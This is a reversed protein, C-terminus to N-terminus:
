NVTSKSLLSVDSFVKGPTFCLIYKAESFIQVGFWDNELSAGLVM